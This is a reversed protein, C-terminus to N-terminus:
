YNMIAIRCVVGSGDSLFLWDGTCDYVAKAPVHLYAKAATRSEMLTSGWAAPNGPVPTFDTASPSSSLRVGMPRPDDSIDIPPIWVKWPKPTTEDALLFVFSDADKDTYGSRFKSEVFRVAIPQVLNGCRVTVSGSRDAASPNPNTFSLKYRYSPEFRTDSLDATAIETSLLTAADPHTALVDALRWRRNYSGGWGEFSNNSLGLEYQNDTVIHFIDDEADTIQVELVTNGSNAPPNAMALEPTSWGPGEVRVVTVIYRHNRLIHYPVGADDHMLIRYYYEQGKWSAQVLVSMYDAPTNYREYAYLLPQPGASWGADDAASSWYNVYSLGGPVNPVTAGSANVVLASAAADGLTARLLSFADLGNDGAPQGARIQVCAAARLLNVGLPGSADDVRPLTGVGYMMLPLIEDARGGALPVTKLATLVDTESMGPTLATMDVRDAGLATRANAIVMFTRRSASPDVRVTFSKAAGDGSVLDTGVRELFKGDQDFVLVDMNLVDCDGYAARTQVPVAAPVEVAFTVAVKGEGPGATVGPKKDMMCSTALLAACAILLTRKMKGPIFM